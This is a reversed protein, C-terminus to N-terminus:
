TKIFPSHGTWGKPPGKRNYRMVLVQVGKKLYGREIMEDRERPLVHVCGHSQGVLEMPVDENIPARKFYEYEATTHIYYPTRKGDRMLNWSWEGFDNMIWKPRLIEHKYAAKHFDKLDAENVVPPDGDKKHFAMTAKTWVGNPGNAKHWQGPKEEFEVYGDSGLRLAAGYAISSFPWNLTTHHQQPGLRYLGAPTSGATHGGRDKFGHGPAPGGVAEYVEGKGGMVYIHGFTTIWGPTLPYNIGRRSMVHTKTGEGPYLVLRVRPPHHLHHVRGITGPVRTGGQEDFHLNTHHDHGAPHASRYQRPPHTAM